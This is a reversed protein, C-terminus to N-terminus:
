SSLGRIMDLLEDPITSPIKANLQILMDGKSKNLRSLIGKGPVRMSTGPQTKPPIKLRLVSGDITRVNLAGGVILDWISIDQQKILDLKDVEWIKDPLVTFKVTVDIGNVLKPYKISEGSLLGPPINVMVMENSNHVRIRMPRDGGQVAEVLTISALVTVNQQQQQHKYRAERLIDAFDGHNTRGHFIDDIIDEPNFNFDNAGSFGGPNVRDSFAPKGDKIMDFAKKAEKFKEDKGDNRDPHYKMALKRYAKKIDDKTATRSVGLVSYPDM